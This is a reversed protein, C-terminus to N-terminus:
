CEPDERARRIVDTLSLNADRDPDYESETLGHQRILHLFRHDYKMEVQCGEAPCSFLTDGSSKKCWRPHDTMHRLYPGLVQIPSPKTVKEGRNQCCKKSNLVHKRFESISPFVQDRRVKCHPCGLLGRGYCGYTGVKVRRGCNRLCPCKATTKIVKQTTLLVTDNTLKRIKRKGKEGDSPIDFEEGFDGFGDFVPHIDDNEAVETVEEPRVPTKDKRSNKEPRKQFAPDEEEDETNSHMSSNSSSSTNEDEEANGADIVEETVTEQIADDEAVVRDDTEDNNKDKNVQRLIYEKRPAKFGKQARGKSVIRSPDRVPIHM